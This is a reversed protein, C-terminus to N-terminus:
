RVWGSRAPSTCQLAPLRQALPGRCLLDRQTWSAGRTRLGAGGAIKPAQLPWAVADGFRSLIIDNDVVVDIRGNGDVDALALSRAFSYNGYTAEFVREAQLQADGGQLYVGLGSGTPHAVVLDLRGDGDMDAVSLAVPAPATALLRDNGFQGMADQSLVAVSQTGALSSLTLVIDARGDNDLDGVTLRPPSSVAMPLARHQVPGFGSGVRLAWALEYAANDASAQVWVLDQRGDGDLDAFQWAVIFNGPGAAGKEQWNGGADRQLFRLGAPQAVVLEERGDGDLDLAGIQQSTLDLAPRETLFSGDAQQLLLVLPPVACDSYAVLDRRGDGDADIVAVDVLGCGFFEPFTTLRQAPAFGGGALALRVAIFQVSSGLQQAGIVLDPRGDGNWDALRVVSVEAGDLTAVPRALAGPDTRFRLTSSSLLPPNGLADGIPSALQVLYERNRLLPTVIPVSLTNGSVTGPLLLGGSPDPFLTLSVQVATGAAPVLPEDFNLVLSGTLPVDAAGESPTSSVLRPGRTDVFFARPATSLPNGALDTVSGGSQLTYRGDPLPLTPTYTLQTGSADARRDAAVAVGAADLLRLGGSGDLSLPDLRESFVFTLPQSNGYAADAAPTSSL